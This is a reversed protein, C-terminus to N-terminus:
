PAGRSETAVVPTGSAMAEVVPLGFGEAESPMLLITARRYVAALERRTLFPVVM